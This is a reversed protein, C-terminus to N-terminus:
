RGLRIQSSDVWGRLPALLVGQTLAGCKREGKGETWAVLAVVAGEASYIPGGSDGSCAGGFEAAPALWLLVRSRPERVRLPAERLTGGTKPEGERRLGYGAVVVTEGPAPTSVGALDAPHFRPPLDTKTKVLGVDISRTRQAPADARYDPHALSAEVEIVVPAGDADRFHVRMDGPPRLCHAATLIVRPSLVIATCFGSGEPGRTLVMVTEDARAAGDTSDGVIARAPAILSLAALLLTVARLM